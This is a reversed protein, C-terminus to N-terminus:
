FEGYSSPFQERLRFSIANLLDAHPVKYYTCMKNSRRVHNKEYCGPLKCQIGLAEKREKDLETVDPPITLDYGIGSGYTSGKEIDKKLRKMEQNLNECKVKNRRKKVHMKKQQKQRKANKHQKRKLNDNLVPCMDFELEFYVRQWFSFHGLNHIGVATHVRHTLAMTSGLFKNKPAYKSISQNLAENTQTDGTHQSEKLKPEEVYPGYISWFQDYLARDKVIDRYHLQPRKPASPPDPHAGPHGSDDNNSPLNEQEM